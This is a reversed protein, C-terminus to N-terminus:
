GAVTAARGFRHRDRGRARGGHGRRQFGTRALCAIGMTSLYGPSIAAKTVRYNPPIPRADRLLVDGGIQMDGLPLWNVAGAATVGPLTEISELIREHARQLLPATPYASEPFSVTMTMVHSPQFGMDVSTLRLFSKVLLGAGVLLVLALAVEGVVLTHRLWDARRTSWTTTDRVAGPIGRTRTGHLAPALGLVLGSILAVGFTFALVWGDIQIESDRPLLGAPALSVLAPVSVLAILTGALGGLLAIVATETLLQRVVRGRGAGLALRTAIEQRRSLTSIMLLNSVNACAILLVLAVAGAFVLLPTRVNGVM